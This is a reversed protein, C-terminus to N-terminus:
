DVHTTEKTLLTDYRQVNAQSEEQLSLSTAAPEVKRSPAQLRALVNLVHDASPRGADLALEIAVQVAEVGHEPVAALVLAMIRDGGEQRLLQRQLRQFPLPLEAFPAGNRLAGPKRAVVSLYHQWDYVTQYREFRRGHRAIVQGDAVVVIEEPYARLSVIRHAHEAPVSYRNRQLYVLATSSVRVPQEVYGDFARPMPLLQPQEAVLRQAVTQEPDEPHRLAGWSTRCAEALHAYLAALSPWPQALVTQWLQRRRDQVNKEVVGKEWGAARNCFDPDFLYHSCMALFRANVTRAKGAGVKDVATKMNDYIGRRPVGGFALFARTHADFLMEHSQHPYAVLWFARSACLKVHALELRRRQGGLEAYECSWDFQFAEGPAFRLPVYAQRRPAAGGEQRWRHIFAAVRGYGGTYGQAQLQQFLVQGTRRDRVARHSDTTLWTTLQAQYPDLISRVVRGPYKPETVTPQRLWTRVTNRSLGTQRAIERVSLGDRFHLRRIKALM